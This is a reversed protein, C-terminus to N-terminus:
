RSRNYLLQEADQIAYDRSMFRFHRKKGLNGFVALLRDQEAHVGDVEARAATDDEGPVVVVGDVQPVRQLRVAQGHEVAVLVPNARELARRVPRGHGCAAPVAREFYPSSCHRTFSHFNLLM